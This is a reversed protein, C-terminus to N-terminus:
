QMLNNSCANTVHMIICIRTCDSGILKDIASVWRGHTKTFIKLWRQIGLREHEGLLSLLMTTPLFQFGCPFLSPERPDTQKDIRHGHM